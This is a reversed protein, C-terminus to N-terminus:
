TMNETSLEIRDSLSCSANKAAGLQIQFMVNILRERATTTRISVIHQHHLPDDRQLPIPQEHGARCVSLLDGLRAFQLM